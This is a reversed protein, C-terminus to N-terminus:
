GQKMQAKLAALAAFPSNPDIPKEPRAPRPAPQERPKHKERRNFKPKADAIERKKFEPRTIREPMKRFPGTDKPWWVNIDILEPAAIETVAEDVMEVTAEPVPETVVPAAVVIPKAIQKKQAKFGLSVLIEEFEEGSCGVLSMMDSVVTFGGGEFAGAPRAEEPIRPKWFVRDRILDALRELM